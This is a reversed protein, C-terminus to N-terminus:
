AMANVVMEMGDVISIVAQLVTLSKTLRAALVVVVIAATTM